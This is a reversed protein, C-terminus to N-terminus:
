PIIDDNGGTFLQRRICRCLWIGPMCLFFWLLTFPLCIQGLLNLPVDSYDWVSWRMRLNVFVGVAMEAATILLAGSASQFAFPMADNASVKYLLAGSLGGLLTMTWHTYGRFLIEMLSYLLSGVLFLYLYEYIAIRRQM